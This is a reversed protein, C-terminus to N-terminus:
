EQPIFKITIDLIESITGLRIPPGWTGYGSSVIVQYTGKRLYGWDIEFFRSTLLNIPLIQGHHTHGSLQLDVGELAGEELGVPQHDMLIIPFERNCGQLITSLKQRPTGVIQERFFDDRGVIYVGNDLKIYQDRLISIGARKLWILAKESHGYIYEHSGLIGYTGCRSRIGRLIEPMGNEVFAGINEDLIDGPMLVLDPDLGNIIEVARVLRERGVLLGLHLDSILVVHLESCSGGTSKDITIDYHRVKPIRANRAGYAVVGIAAALIGLGVGVSHSSVASSLFGIFSNVMVVIDYVLWFLFLYFSLGLWYAGIWIMRDSFDGPFYIAGIRGFFYSGALLSFIIWYYSVLGPAVEAGVSQWLRLGIYYNGIGFLIIQVAITLIFKTRM